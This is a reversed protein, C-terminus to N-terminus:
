RPHSLVHAVVGGVTRLEPRVQACVAGPAEHQGGPSAQPPRIAAFDPRRSVGNVSTVWLGHILVVTDTAANDM